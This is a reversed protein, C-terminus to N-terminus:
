KKALGPNVAPEPFDELTQISAVDLIETLPAPLCAVQNEFGVQRSVQLLRHGGGILLKRLPAGLREVDGHAATGGGFVQGVGAEGALLFGVEVDLALWARSSVQLRQKAESKM